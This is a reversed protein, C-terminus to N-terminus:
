RSPISRTPRTLKECKLSLRKCTLNGTKGGRDTGDGCRYVNSYFSLVIHIHVIQISPHTTGEIRCAKREKEAVACRGGIFLTCHYIQSRKESKLEKRVM